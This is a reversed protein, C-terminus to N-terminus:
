IYNDKVQESDKDGLLKLVLEWAAKNSSSLQINSDMTVSNTVILTENDKRLKENEVEIYEVYRTSIDLGIWKQPPASECVHADINELDVGGGCGGCYWDFESM